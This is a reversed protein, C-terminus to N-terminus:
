PKSSFLDHDRYNLIINKLYLVTGINIRIYYKYLNKKNISANNKAVRKFLPIECEGITKLLDAYEEILLSKQKLEKLITNLRTIRKEQRKNRQKLTRVQQQYIKRQNVLAKRLLKKRPTDELERTNRGGEEMHSTQIESESEL